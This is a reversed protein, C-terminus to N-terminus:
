RLITEAILRASDIKNEKAFETAAQGMKSLAAPDTLLKELFIGLEVALAQNQDIIVACGSKVALEANYRQHGGAIILPVFIVPRGAAAIETCAMAGARSIVLHAWSLRAPMDNIFAVPEIHTWAHSECEAKVREFDASGAQLLIHLPYKKLNEANSLIANTVAKAGQSGGLLLLNVKDAPTNWATIKRYEERVPNPTTQVDVTAAFGKVGSVAFIKTVWKSLFRNAAGSQVNQEQIYYLRGTLKAVLLPIVTPYGGFGIVAQPKFTAIVSFAKYLATPLALLARLIGAIGKGTLPVFPVATLVFGAATVLKKEMEKGTGVFMVEAGLNRCAKAVALAPNIHGGTGGAVVMVRSKM